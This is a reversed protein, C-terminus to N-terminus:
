NLAIDSGLNYTHTFGAQLQALVHVNRYNTYVPDTNPSCLSEWAILGIDFNFDLYM